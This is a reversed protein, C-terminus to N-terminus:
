SRIHRMSADLLTTVVEVEKDDRPAYILLYSAPPGKPILGALPHREGWGKEVVTIADDNSFVMHMSGDSPHIHATEGHTRLAHPSHRAHECLTIAQNRLEFHSLRYDFLDSNATVADDFAQQLRERSATAAFQDTQRHPIPWPAIPPRPQAREPVDPPLHAKGEKVDFVSLDMPDGKRLRLGTVRIWGRLNPPLGGDGLARWQRYDRRALGAAAVAALGLGIAIRNRM